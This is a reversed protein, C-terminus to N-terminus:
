KLLIFCMCGKFPTVSNEQWLEWYVYMEKFINKWKSGFHVFPPLALFKMMERRTPIIASRHQFSNRLIHCNKFQSSFFEWILKQRAFNCFGKLFFTLLMALRNWKCCLWFVFYKKRLWGVTNKFVYNIEGLNSTSLSLSFLTAFWGTEFLLRIGKGGYDVGRGFCDSVFGTMHIYFFLKKLFLTKREQWPRKM